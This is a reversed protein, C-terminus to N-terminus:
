SAVGRLRYAASPGTRMLWLRAGPQRAMLKSTAMFDNADIEYDESGLAVAIYKGDDEPRLRPRIVRDYIAEAQREEEALVADETEIVM